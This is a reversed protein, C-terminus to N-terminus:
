AGGASLVESPTGPAKTVSVTGTDTVTAAVSASAAPTVTRSAVTFESMTSPYVQQAHLEINSQSTLGGVLADVTQTPNDTRGLKVPLGTLRIDGNSSLLLGVAAEGTAPDTGSMLGNVTVSGMLDILNATALMRGKGARTAVPNGLTTAYGPTALPDGIVSSLTLHDSALFV